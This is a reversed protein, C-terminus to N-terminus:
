AAGAVAAMTPADDRAASTPPCLTFTFTAGANPASEAWIRGGHREVIRKVTTLGVGTGAFDKAHHFRQFIVFLRDARAMDVGVGNDKISYALGGDSPVASSVEVVSEACKGSYKLANGLLNVLVQRLLIPDARCPPLDAIRIDVKRAGLDLQMEALIEHCMGAVDITELSLPRQGIRSLKLLAEILSEMKEVNRQIKNLCERATEPLQAAFDDVLMGSFGQIYRLPGRLDHSVSSEFAELEENALLLERTREEVRRELETAQELAKAYLHETEKQAAIRHAETMDTVVMGLTGPDVKGLARISIQAPMQAGDTANLRIQLKTGDDGSRRLLFHLANGDDSSLFRYFSGGIVQELPCKLMQAFCQNAYLITGENTLTLAGEHMSEILLRYAHAAGDLTFVRDGQQGAVVVADVEGDRIARITEEAEALRVLLGAIEPSAGNRPSSPERRPKM